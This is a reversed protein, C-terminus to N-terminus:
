GVQDKVSPKATCGNEAVECATNTYATKAQGKQPTARATCMWLGAAVAACLLLAAAVSGFIVGFFQTNRCIPSIIFRYFLLGVNFM